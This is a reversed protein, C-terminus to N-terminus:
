KIEHIGRWSSIVSVFISALYFPVLRTIIVEYDIVPPLTPTIISLLYYGTYVSLLAIFSIAISLTFSFTILALSTLSILEITNIGINMLARLEVQLTNIVKRMAIFSAFLYLALLIYYLDSIFSKINEDIMVLLGQIYRLSKIRCIYRTTGNLLKRGIVIADILDHASVVYGKYSSEGIILDVVCEGNTVDLKSRPISLPIGDSLSCNLSKIRLLDGHESVLRDYEDVGIAFFGVNNVYVEGITIPICSDGLPNTEITIAIRELRSTDTITLGYYSLSPICSVIIVIMIPTILSLFIVGHKGSRAISSILALYVGPFFRRM